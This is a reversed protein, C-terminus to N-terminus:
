NWHEHRKPSEPRLRISENNLLMDQMLEPVKSLVLVARYLCFRPNDGESGSWFM